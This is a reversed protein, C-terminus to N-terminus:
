TQCYFSVNVRGSDHQHGCKHKYHMATFRCVSVCHNAVAPMLTVVALSAYIVRKSVTIKPINKKGQYSMKREIGGKSALKSFRYERKVSAAAARAKIPAEPFPRWETLAIYLAERLAQPETM